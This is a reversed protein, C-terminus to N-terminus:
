KRGKKKALRQQRRKDRQRMRRRTARKGPAAGGGLLGGTGMFGADPRGLCEPGMMAPGGPGGGAVAAELM